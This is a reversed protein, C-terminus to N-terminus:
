YSGRGSIVAPITALIINIDGLLSYNAIYALELEVREDLSLNARGKVQMPGTMGPKIVLRQRHWADYMEVIRKEEPRPGVLSMEGKVVNFLQPLEDLSTRRLMRGVRTVRPDKKIKLVPELLGTHGLVEKLREEADVVMSRFKYIKFPKGNEGIREQTFLVPGPSDLKILLAVIVMVPFFIVASLAAVLLDFVRKELRDVAGMVPGRVGILPLGDLDYVRAKTLALDLIDPVLEIKVPINRLRRVTDVIAQRHDYSMAVVVDDIKHQGVVEAIEELRGLVPGPLHRSDADNGAFGRLELGMWGHKLVARGAEQGMPGTGAVLVTRTVHGRARLWDWVARAILRFGILLVVDLVLFYVLLLRSFDDNHTLYFISALMIGGLSVAVLVGKLEASFDALRRHGYVKPARFGVLWLVLVILYVELTVYVQGPGIPKGFQVQHRVLDALYLALATLTLDSLLLLASIRNDMRALM